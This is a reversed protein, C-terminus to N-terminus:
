EQLLVDQLLVDQLLLVDNREPLPVSTEDTM